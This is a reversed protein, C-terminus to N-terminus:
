AGRWKKVRPGVEIFQQISESHAKKATWIKGNAHTNSLVLAGHVHTPAIGFFDRMFQEHGTVDVGSFRPVGKGGHSHVHFIALRHNLAWQRAKRIAEASMMAGVTPDDLYDDDAVPRYDQALMVVGNANGVVGAAIWGVREAAFSHPRHLDARVREMLVSTIKFTTNM